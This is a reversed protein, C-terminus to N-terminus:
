LEERTIRFFQVDVDGTLAQIALPSISHEIRDDPGRKFHKKGAYWAASKVASEGGYDPFVKEHWNIWERSLKYTLRKPGKESILVEPEPLRAATMQDCIFTIVRLSHDADWYRGQPTNLGIRIVKSDDEPDFAVLGTAGGLDLEGTEKLKNLTVTVKEQLPLYLTDHNKNLELLGNVFDEFKTQIEKVCEDTTENM